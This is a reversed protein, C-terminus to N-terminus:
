LTDTEFVAPYRCDVEPPTVFRFGEGDARVSAIRFHSGDWSSFFVREGAADWCPEAELGPGAHLPRPQSGDISALWLDMASPGSRCYALRRGDPSPAPDTSSEAANPFLPRPVPSDFSSEFLQTRGQNAKVFLLTPSHPVWRPLENLRPDGILLRRQQQDAAYWWIRINDIANPAYTSVLYGRVPDFDFDKVVEIRDLVPGSEAGTRANLGHLKGDNDRYILDPQFGCAKLCRKDVASQTLARASQGAADSVWIQWYGDQCRAHALATAGSASPPEWLCLTVLAVAHLRLRNM